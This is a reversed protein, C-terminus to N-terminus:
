DPFSVSNLNIRSKCEEESRSMEQITVCSCLNDRGKGSVGVIVNIM